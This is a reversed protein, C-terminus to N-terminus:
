VQVTAARSEKRALIEESSEAPWGPLGRDFHAHEDFELSVAM